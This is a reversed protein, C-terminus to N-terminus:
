AAARKGSFPRRGAAAAIWIDLGYRGAAEAMLIRRQEPDLSPDPPAPGPEYRIGRPRFWSVLGEELAVTWGMKHVLGHHVRCVTVLNDYETPGKPFPVIHHIDVFRKMGCGPFTCAHGDRRLVARRLDRSPFRKESGAALPRGDPDEVVAQIHSDCCLMEVIEPALVEGSGTVGNGDGRSLAEASIHVVVTPKATEKGDSSTVLMVLADARRQGMCPVEDQDLLSHAADPDPSLEHALRDIAEVLAAGQEAPVMGEFFMAQDNFWWEFRRENHASEVEDKSARLAEDARQRIRGVTVRRAWRVLKRETEPTAFRTLEVTKDLSLSGAELAGSLHPLKEIAHAADVWRQAKWKSIQFFAAVMEATNRAGEQRHLCARDASLIRRLRERDTKGTVAASDLLEARLQHRDKSIQDYLAGPAPARRDIEPMSSLMDFM